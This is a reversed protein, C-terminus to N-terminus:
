ARMARGLSLDKDALWSAERGAPMKSESVDSVTSHTSHCQQRWEGSRARDGRGGWTAQMLVLLFKRSFWSALRGAPMKSESVDNVCSHTSCRM